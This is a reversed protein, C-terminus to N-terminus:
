PLTPRMSQRRVRSSESRRWQIASHLLKFYTTIPWRKGEAATWGKALSERLDAATEGRFRTYGSGINDPMHADSNGVLPLGSGGFVRQALGNCGPTFAGANFVEIANIGSEILVSPTFLYRRAAALDITPELPHAIIAIGDQEHIASVTEILSMGWPIPHSIWLALVHGERTTVEMGPIIEFPYRSRHEYAWLSADLRDHDTIAIVDLNTHRAVHDLVQQATAVGDSATTHMHLDARGTLQDKLM